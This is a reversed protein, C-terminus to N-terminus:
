SYTVLLRVSHENRSSRFSFDNDDDNRHIEEPHIQNRPNRLWLQAKKNSETVTWSTSNVNTSNYVQIIPIHQFKNELFHESFSTFCVISKKFTIRVTVTVPFLICIHLFLTSIIFYSFPYLDLNDNHNQKHVKYQHSVQLM